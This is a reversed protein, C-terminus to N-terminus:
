TKVIRRDCRKFCKQLAFSQGSIVTLRKDNKKLVGTSFILLVPFFHLWTSIGLSIRLSEFFDNGHTSRGFIHQFLCFCLALFIPYFEASKAIPSSTTQIRNNCESVWCSLMMAEGAYSAPAMFIPWLLVSTQHFRYCIVFYFFFFLIFRLLWILARVSIQQRPTGAIAM